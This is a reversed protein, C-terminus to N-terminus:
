GSAAEVFAILRGTELDVVTSWMAPTEFGLAVTTGCFDITDM